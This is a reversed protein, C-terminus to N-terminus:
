LVHLSTILLCPLGRGRVPLRSDGQGPSYLQASRSGVRRNASVCQGPSELLFYELQHKAFQGGSGLGLSEKRSGLGCIPKEEQRSERPMRSLSRRTCLNVSLSARGKGEGPRPLWIHPGSCSNFRTQQPGPQILSPSLSVIFLHLTM